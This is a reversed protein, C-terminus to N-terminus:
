ARVPRLRVTGTQAADMDEPYASEAQLPLDDLYESNWGFAEAQERMADAGVEDALPAFSTNCSQEMAQIM